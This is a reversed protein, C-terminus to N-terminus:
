VNLVQELSTRAINQLRIVCKDLAFRKALYNTGGNEATHLWSWRCKGLTHWRRHRVHDFNATVLGGATSCKLQANWNLIETSCKAKQGVQCVFLSLTSAPWDRKPSRELGFWFDTIDDDAGFRNTSSSPCEIELPLTNELLFKGMSAWSFKPFFELSFSWHFMGAILRWADYASCVISLHWNHIWHISSVFRDTNDLAKVSRKKLRFKSSSSGSKSVISRQLPFVFLFLCVFIFGVGSAPFNKLFM